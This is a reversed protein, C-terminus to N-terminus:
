RDVRRRRPARDDRGALGAGDGGRHGGDAPRDCGCRGPRPSGAAHGGVPRHHCGAGGVAVVARRARCAGAPDARRRCGPGGVRPCGPRGARRHHRPRRPALRPPRWRQLRRRRPCLDCRGRPSGWAVTALIGDPPDPVGARRKRPRLGRDRLDGEGSRGPPRGAGRAGGAPRLGDGPAPVPGAGRHIASCVSTVRRRSSRCATGRPARGLVPLLDDDWDLDALSFLQTRSATSPDTRAGPGLRAALGRRGDRGCAPRSHGRARGGPGGRSALAAELRLLVSRPPPGDAGPDLARPWSGRGTRRHGPQAPVVLPDRPRAGRWDATGPSSRRARTRSVRPRSAPPGGVTTSM